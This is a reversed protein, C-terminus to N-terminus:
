KGKVAVELENIRNQNEEQESQHQQVSKLSDLESSQRFNTQKVKHIVSIYNFIGLDSM